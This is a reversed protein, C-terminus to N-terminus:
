WRAPEKVCQPDTPSVYTARIARKSRYWPMPACEQIVGTLRYPKYGDGRCDKSNREQRIGRRDRLLSRRGADLIPLIQILVAIWGVLNLRVTRNVPVGVGPEAAIM